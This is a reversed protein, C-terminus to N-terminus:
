NSKAKAASKEYCDVAATLARRCDALQDFGDDPEWRQTTNVAVEKGSKDRESLVETSRWLV